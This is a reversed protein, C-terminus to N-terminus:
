SLGKARNGSTKLRLDPWDSGIVVVVDSSPANVRQTLVLRCGLAQGVKLAKEGSGCRDVVLTRDYDFADANGTGVIDFGADRLTAAVDEAVGEAGCGNLVMVRIDFALGATEPAQRAGRRLFPYALAAVLVVIGIAYLYTISLRGFAGSAAGRGKRAM